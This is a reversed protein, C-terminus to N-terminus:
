FCCPLLLLFFIVLLGLPFEDSRGVL